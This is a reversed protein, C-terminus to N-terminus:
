HYPSWRSRCEKGVRREESRLERDSSRTLDRGLFDIRGQRTCGAPPLLGLISLATVSKGSGSEGVLGVTEGAHVDFSIGRVAQHSPEDRREFTINLDRVSLLPAAPAPADTPEPTTDANGDQM